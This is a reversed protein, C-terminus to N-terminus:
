NGKGWNTMFGTTAIQSGAGLLSGLLQGLFSPQNSKEFNYNRTDSM